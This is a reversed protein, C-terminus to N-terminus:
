YDTTSTLEGMGAMDRSRGTRGMPQGRDMADGATKYGFATM